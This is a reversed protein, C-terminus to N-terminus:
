DEPIIRKEDVSNYWNFKALKHSNFRSDERIDRGLKIFSPISIEEIKKESAIKLILIGEEVNLFKDLMFYSEEYIFCFRVRKITQRFPDKRELLRMYEQSTIQCKTVTYENNIEKNRIAHMYTYSGSQGRKQIKDLKKDKVRLFTDEVYIRVSPINSPLIPIQSPETDLELQVLFKKYFQMPTPLGVARLVCAQCRKMKDDFSQGKVNDIISLHSHGVWAKQTNLDTQRAAELGEYRAENNMVTYHEEAGQAATVLHIVAEYRRDRLHVVSWGREDLIVQWLEPSIYASGDMLGRDCLIVSKERTASAIETFTDELAMQMQMLNAQLEVQASEDSGDLNIMAGGKMLLTAAEPVIYVSYGLKSLEKAVSNISTTKGACPGGTIVIRYVDRTNFNSNSYCSSASKHNKLSPLESSNPSQPIPKKPEVFAYISLLGIIILLLVTNFSDGLIETDM